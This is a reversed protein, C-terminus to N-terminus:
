LRRLCRDSVYLVVHHPSHLCPMDLRFNILHTQEESLMVLARAPLWWEPEVSSTGDLNKVEYKNARAENWAQNKFTTKHTRPRNRFQENSQNASARDDM